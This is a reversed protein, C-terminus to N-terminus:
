ERSRPRRRHWSMRAPQAGQISLCGVRVRGNQYMRGRATDGLVADLLLAHARLAAPSTTETKGRDGHRHRENDAGWRGPGCAERPDVAVVVRGRGVREVLDAHELLSRRRRSLDQDEHGPRRGASGIELRERLVDDAPRLVPLHPRDLASLVDEFVVRHGVPHLSALGRRLLEEVVVEAPERVGADRGVVAKREAARRVRAPPAHSHRDLVQSVHDRLRARAAALDHEATM